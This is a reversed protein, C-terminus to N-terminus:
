QKDTEDREDVKGNAVFTAQNLYANDFVGSTGFREALDVRDRMEMHVAPPPFEERIDHTARFTTNTRIALREGVPLPQEQLPMMVELKAQVGAARGYELARNLSQELKGMNDMFPPVYDSPICLTFTAPLREEWFFRLDVPPAKNVDPAAALLRQRETEERDALYDALEAHNLTRYRWRSEGPVLLPFETESDFSAFQVNAGPSHFRADPQDYRFGHGVLLTRDTRRGDLLPPKGSTLNLCGQDPVRGVFLIRRGSEVQVLMPVAVEGYNARLEIRPVAKDLGKNIIPLETEAKDTSAEVKDFGEEANQSPNDILELQLPRSGTSGNRVTFKAVATEGKWTIDPEDEARYVLAALRLLAQASGLGTQHIRVFDLMRRRFQQTSEGGGPLLGFLAGMLGLETDKKKAVDPEHDVWGRALGHWRSRMLVTAGRAMWSMELGLAEFLARINPGGQLVRPLRQVMRGAYYHSDM